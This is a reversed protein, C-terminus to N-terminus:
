DHRASGFLPFQRDHAAKVDPFAALELCAYLLVQLFDAIGEPGDGGHLLISADRIVTALIKRVTEAESSETDTM